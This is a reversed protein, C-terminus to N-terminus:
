RKPLYATCSGAIESTCLTSPFPKLGSVRYGKFAPKGGRSRIFKEAYQDLEWTTVGPQVLEALSALLEGVIRCSVRMKAIESSSKLHIM